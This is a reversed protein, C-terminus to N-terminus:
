EVKGSPEPYKSASLRGLLAFITDLDPLGDAGPSYNPSSAVREVANAIHGWASRDVQEHLGPNADMSATLAVADSWLAALVSAESESLSAKYKADLANSEDLIAKHPGADVDVGDRRLQELGWDDHGGLSSYFSRVPRNEELEGGKEMQRRLERTADLSIMGEPILALM